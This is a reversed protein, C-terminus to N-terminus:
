GNANKTELQLDEKRVLWGKILIFKDGKQRYETKICVDTYTILPSYLRCFQKLFALAIIQNEQKSRTSTGENHNKKTIKIIICQM